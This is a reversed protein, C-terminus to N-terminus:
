KGVQRRQEGLRYPASGVIGRTDEFVAGRNLDVLRKMNTYKPIFYKSQSYAISIKYNLADQKKIIM